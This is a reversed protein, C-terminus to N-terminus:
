RLSNSAGNPNYGREHSVRAGSGASYGSQCIARIAVCGSLKMDTLTRNHADTLTSATDTNGAVPAPAVGSKDPKQDRAVKPNSGGKEPGPGIRLRIRRAFPVASARLTM